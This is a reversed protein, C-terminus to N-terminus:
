PFPIVVPAGREYTAESTISCNFTVPTDLIVVDQSTVLSNLQNLTLIRTNISGDVFGKHTFVVLYVHWAVNFDGKTNAAGVLHDHGKVRSCPQSGNFDVCAQDTGALSGYDASPFPLVNVHDCNSPLCNFDDANLTSNLPYLPLYLPATAIPNAKSPFPSKDPTLLYITNGNAYDVAPEVTSQGFARQGSEQAYAPTSLSLFAFVAVWLCAISVLRNSGKM